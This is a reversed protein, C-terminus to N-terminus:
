SIIKVASGFGTNLSFQQTIHLLGLGELQRSRKLPGADLPRLGGAELIKALRAKADADDSALFVDLPQGAVEGAVLTGGFTTNFAKVVKARPVIQAIEEAASVGPTTALDDYTENVPNSIEVVTKGALQDRFQTAVEKEVPYFLALVVTDDTIPSGYPATTVTAGSRAGAGLESALKTANEATRDMITVSEGAAVLRTGIGRAMNGAGIITIGM